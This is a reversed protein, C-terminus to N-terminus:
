ESWAFTDNIEDESLENCDIWRNNNESEKCYVYIEVINKILAPVSTFGGKGPGPDYYIKGVLPSHHSFISHNGFTIPEYPPIHKLDIIEGQVNGTKQLFGIVEDLHEEGELIRHTVTYGTSSGMLNKKLVIVHEKFTDTLGQIRLTEKVLATWAYCNGDENELLKGLSSIEGTERLAGIQTKHGWYQLYIENGETNKRDIRAIKKSAIKTWIKNFIGDNTTQGAAAECGLDVLTHYLKGSVTNSGIVYIKHNTTVTQEPYNDSKIGLTWKIKINKAEIKDLVKGIFELNNNVSPVNYGPESVLTYGIYPSTIPPIEKNLGVEDSTIKVTRGLIDYNGSYQSRIEAERIRFNNGKRFLLPRKYDYYSFPGPPCNMEGDSNGDYWFWSDYSGELSGSWYGDLYINDNFSRRMSGIYFYGSQEDWEEEQAFLCPSLVLIILVLFMKRLYISM